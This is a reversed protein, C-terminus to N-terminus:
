ETTLIKIETVGVVQIKNHQLFMNLEKRNFFKHHKAKRDFPDKYVLNIKNM